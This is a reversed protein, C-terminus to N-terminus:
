LQEFLSNDGREQALEMLYLLWQSSPVDVKGSGNDILIRNQASFQDKDLQNTFLYKYLATINTQYRAKNVVDSRILIEYANLCSLLSMPQKIMPQSPLGPDTLVKTLIGQDLIYNSYTLYGPDSTAKFTAADALLTYCSGSKFDNGTSVDPQYFLVTHLYSLDGQAAYIYKQDNTLSYANVFNQTDQSTQMIAAYSSAENGQQYGFPITVPGPDKETYYKIEVSSTSNDLDTAGRLTELISLYQTKYKDYKVPNTLILEGYQYLRWDFSDAPYNFLDELWASLDTNNGSQKTAAFQAYRLWQYPPDLQNYTSCSGDALCNLQQPYSTAEPQALSTTFTLTNTLATKGRTIIQATNDTVPNGSQRAYWTVLFGGVFLIILLFILLVPLKKKV